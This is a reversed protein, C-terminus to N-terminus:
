SARLYYRKVRVNEGFQNKVKVFEGEIPYNKRLDHIRASLRYIGLKTWSQLPDISQGSQLHELLRSTQSSTM